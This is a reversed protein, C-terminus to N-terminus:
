VCKETFLGDAVEFLQTISAELSFMLKALPQEAYLAAFEASVTALRQHSMPLQVGSKKKYWKELEAGNGWLSSV